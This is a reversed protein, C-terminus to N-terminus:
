AKAPARHFRIENPQAFVQLAPKQPAFAADLLQNSAIIKEAPSNIRLPHQSLILVRELCSAKLSQLIVICHVAGTKSSTQKFQSIL